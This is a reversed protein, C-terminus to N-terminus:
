PAVPRVIFVTGPAIIVSMAKRVATEAQWSIAARLEGYSM